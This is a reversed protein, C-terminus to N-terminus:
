TKLKRTSMDTSTFHTTPVQRYKGSTFAPRPTKKIILAGIRCVCPDYKSYPNERMMRDIEEVSPLEPHEPAEYPLQLKTTAFNREPNFYFDQWEMATAERATQVGYEERIIQLKTRM